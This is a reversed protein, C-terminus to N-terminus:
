LRVAEEGLLHHRREATAATLLLARFATFLRKMTPSKHPYLDPPDLDHVVMAHDVEFILLRGDPLEACDIGLYDMGIADHIAALATAHKVAFDHEFRQMFAGEEARKAASEAMGANLYHIMWHSSIGMHSAFPQGAILIVRYKRFLGDASRYDIFPSVFCTDGPLTDIAAILQEPTDIKNLDHGAHSDLPRVLLPFVLENPWDDSQAPTQTLAVALQRLQAQDLRLTPPMLTGPADRLLNAAIERATHGIHLPHNLIPQPWVALRPQWEALLARNAESEGIAIFLVDHEPIEALDVPNHTAYYLTLAIDSDEMLCEIPVNSMLDGPAMLALVRCVPPTQAVPLAYHRCVTLAEAQISLAIERNGYLQLIIAADMLAAANSPDAQAHQLLSQGRGSLDAGSFHLRLLAALGLYQYM